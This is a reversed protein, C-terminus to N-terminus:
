ATVRELSAVFTLKRCCCGVDADDTDCGHEHVMDTADAVTAGSGLSDGGGAPYADITAHPMLAAYIAPVLVPRGYEIVLDDFAARGDSINWDPEVSGGAIRPTVGLTLEKGAIEVVATYHIKTRTENCGVEDISRVTASLTQTTM